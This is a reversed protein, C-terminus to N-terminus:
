FHLGRVRDGKRSKYHAGLRGRGYGGGAGDNGGSKGGGSAVSELEWDSLEGGAPAEPIRTFDAAGGGARDAARREGIETADSM